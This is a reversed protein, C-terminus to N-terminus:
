SLVTMLNQMAKQRASGYGALAERMNQLKRQRTIEQEQKKREAEAKKASRSGMFLSFLASGAAVYPNGTALGMQLGTTLAGGLAQEQSQSGFATQVGSQLGGMVGQTMASQQAAEKAEAKEQKMLEFQDRQLDLYPDGSGKQERKKTVAEQMKLTTRLDKLPDKGEPMLSFKDQM